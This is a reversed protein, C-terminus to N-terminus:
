RRHIAKWMRAGEPTVRLGLDHHTGGDIELLGREVAPFVWDRIECHALGLRRAIGTETEREPAREGDGLGSMVLRLHLDAVDPARDLGARDRTWELLEDETKKAVKGPLRGPFDDHHIFDEAMREEVDAPAHNSGYRNDLSVLLIEEAMGLYGLVDWQTLLPNGVVVDRGQAIARRVSDQCWRHAQVARSSRFDFVGDRTHYMDAEYHAFGLEVALTRALCSKGSGPPGRVIALVPTM